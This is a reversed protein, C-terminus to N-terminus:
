SRRKLRLKMLVNHEDRFTLDDRVADETNPLSPSSPWYPLSDYHLRGSPPLSSCSVTLRGNTSSNLENSSSLKMRWVHEVCLLGLIQLKFAINKDCLKSLCILIKKM